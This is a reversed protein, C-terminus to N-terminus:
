LLTKAKRAAYKRRIQVVKDATLKASWFMEGRVVREPHTYTGNRLGRAPNHTGLVSARHLMNESHNAWEINETRNDTKDDNKHNIETKDLPCQGIFTLAVLQHVSFTKKHGDRQLKVKLYGKENPTPKLIRGAKCCGYGAKDRRVHGLDSISYYGEYGLVDRWEEHINDM